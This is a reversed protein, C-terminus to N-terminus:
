PIIPTAKQGGKEEQEKKEREKRERIRRVADRFDDESMGQSHTYIDNQIWAANRAQIIRSGDVGGYNFPLAALIASPIKFKGLYIWSTDLGYKQGNREFTWDRPDRGKHEEALVEAERYAMYIAKVASDNKQAMSLPMRLGSPRLEIRPDPLAPEVGTAIGAPAGGSGTGTGTATGPAASPPTVPPLTTPTVAPALIPAPPPAKKTPKRREASGDGVAGPVGRAAPRVEVYQIRETPAMRDRTFLAGIPYRFTISAILAIVVAHVAISLAISEKSAPRQGSLRANM